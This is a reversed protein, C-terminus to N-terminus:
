KQARGVGVEWGFGGGLHNQLVGVWRETNELLSELRRCKCWVKLGIKRNWFSLGMKWNWFIWSNVDSFKLAFGCRQRRENGRLFGRKKVWSYRARSITLTLSTRKSRLLFYWCFLSFWPLHHLFDCSQYLPKLKAKEGWRQACVLVCHSDM